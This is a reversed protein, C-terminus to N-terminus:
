HMIVVQKNFDQDLGNSRLYYVGDSLIGGFDLPQATGTGLEIVGSWVLKGDTNFLQLDLEGKRGPAEVNLYVLDTTPNPFLSIAASPKALAISRIASYTYKEDLDVMRLRYYVTSATAPIRDLESDIHQYERSQQTFGSAAKEGVVSWKQADTSREIEFHSTNYENDTLWQLLAQNKDIAKADFSLLELPLPANTCDFADNTLQIGPDNSCDDFTCSGDPGCATFTQDDFPPASTFCVDPSFASGGDVYDFRLHLLANIAGTVNDSFCGSSLAQQWSVSVRSSTNDNTTFDAYIPFGASQGLIYGMTEITFNGNSFASSGFAATNYDFYLQGSGLKFDSSASIMVDVEYSGFTGAATNEANAFEFIVNQATLNLSLLLAFFCFLLRM